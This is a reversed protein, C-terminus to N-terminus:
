YRATYHSVLHPFSPKVFPQIQISKAHGTTRFPALMDRTAGGCEYMLTSSKLETLMKSFYM